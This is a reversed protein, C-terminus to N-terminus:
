SSINITLNLENEEFKYFKDANTWASKEFTEVIDGSIYLITKCDLNLIKIEHYEDSEYLGPHSKMTKCDVLTRKKSKNTSISFKM